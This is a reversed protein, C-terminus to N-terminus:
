EMRGTGNCSTCPSKGIGECFACVKQDSKGNICAICDNKGVGECVWCNNVNKIGFYIISLLIIIAISLIFKLPKKKM